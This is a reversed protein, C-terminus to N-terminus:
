STETRVGIYAGLCTSGAIGWHFVQEGWSFTYNSGQFVILYLSFVVYLAVIPFCLVIAVWSLNSKPLFKRVVVIAVYSGVGPSILERFIEQLLNEDLGRSVDLLFLLAHALTYIVLWIIFALFVGGFTHLFNHERSTNM